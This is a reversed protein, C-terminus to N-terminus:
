DLFPAVLHNMSKLQSGLSIAYEKNGEEALHSVVLSGMLLNYSLWSIVNRLGYMARDRDSATVCEFVHVAGTETTIIFHLGTGEDASLSESGPATVSHIDM